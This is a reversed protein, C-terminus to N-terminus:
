APQQPVNAKVDDHHPILCAPAGADMESQWQATPVLEFLFETMASFGKKVRGKNMHKLLSMALGM